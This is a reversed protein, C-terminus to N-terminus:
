DVSIAEYYGYSCVWQCENRIVRFTINIVSIDIM